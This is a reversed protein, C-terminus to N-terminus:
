SWDLCVMMRQKSNSKIQDIEYAQNEHAPWFKEWDAKKCDNMQVQRSFLEGDQMGTVRAFYKVFSPDMRIQKDLGNVLSFAMM